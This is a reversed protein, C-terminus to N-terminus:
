SYITLPFSFVKLTLATSVAAATREASEKLTDLEAIWGHMNTLLEDASAMTRKAAELQEKNLSENSKTSDAKSPEILSDESPKATKLDEAATVKPLLIHKINKEFTKVVGLQEQKIYKMIHLEDLIDEIERLLKGEPNIDLLTNQM